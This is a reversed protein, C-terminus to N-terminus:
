VVRSGFYKDFEILVETASHYLAETTLLNKPVAVHTRNGGITFPSRDSLIRVFDQTDAFYGQTDSDSGEIDAFSGRCLIRLFARLIRLLAWQLVCQVACQLVCRLLHANFIRTLARHIQLLSRLIRM